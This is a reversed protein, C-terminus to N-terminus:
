AAMEALKTVTNWNRATGRVGLAREIVTITLKSPGIGAPYVLYAERGVVEALEPGKIAARLTELAGKAPATKLPMVLLHGPDDRAKDPFPNATVLARWEAASRLMFDVQFGFRKAAEAELQGELKADGRTSSEFVLNGSQLLTRPNTFGLDNALAILNAMKLSRGGVNVARLLAIQTPM